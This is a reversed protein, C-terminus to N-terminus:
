KSKRRKEIYSLIMDAADEATTKGMNLALDYNRVDGWEQGTYYNYYSERTKDEKRMEELTVERGEAKALRKLRYEDDAYLFVSYVNEFDKLIYDACRGLFVGSGYGALKQIIKGQEKYMKNYVPIHGPTGMMVSLGEMYKSSKRYNLEKMSEEDFSDFGIKDAAMYLIERNYYWVNLKEALIEAVETGGSGHQRGITILTKEM